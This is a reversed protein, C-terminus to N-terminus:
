YDDHNGHQHARPLPPLPPFPHGKAQRKGAACVTIDDDDGPSARADQPHLVHRLLFLRYDVFRQFEPGICKLGGHLHRKKWGSRALDVLMGLLAKQWSMESAKM